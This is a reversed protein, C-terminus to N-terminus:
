FNLDDLEPYDGTHLMGTLQLGVQYFGGGIPNAHRATGRCWKLEGEWRVGVLVEDLPRPENLILAMGTTSVEKTTAAFAQGLAPKKGTMPVVLTVLVLPVRREARPGDLMAKLEPCNNNVIKILFSQVELETRRSFLPM